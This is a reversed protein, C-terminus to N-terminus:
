DTTRLRLLSLCGAAVAFAAAMALAAIPGTGDSVSALGFIAAATVAGVSQGTLRATGLMGSAAGARARPPTTVIVHNNPPQFLGFGIGCVVMRWVVDWTAPHAPLLALLVLGIALVAQGIGGLLGSHLRGILAGSVTATAMLALPWATMAIGTRAPGLDWTTLMLFPLAITALTYAAFSCVSTAISLAFVRIRLLDVPLLPVAKRRERRVYVAGLLLSGAIGAAGLWPTDDAADPRYAAALAATGLFLLSFTGANLVVDLLGIRAIAREGAPNAPLSARGLVLLVAAIPVAMAFLLPWPAIALIAGGVTPGAAMSAAVTASNLALGRGLLRDPYVLRILATNVSMVAAAGAGQLARALALTSLSDAVTCLGAALGFLVLGWLYVRRFGLRDGLAACPLLLALVAIQYANVVWIVDAASVRLSQAITPLAINVVAGDLVTMGIGLLIAVRALM